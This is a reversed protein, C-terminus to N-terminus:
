VPSAKPVGVFELKALEGGVSDNQAFRTARLRLIKASVQQM